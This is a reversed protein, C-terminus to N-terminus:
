IKGRIKLWTIGLYEYVAITAKDLDTSSPFFFSPMLKEKVCSVRHDTPAPIPHIGQREFLAMARPMHSASTVLLSKGGGIMPAIFRAEDETDLSKDELIIDEKPIHLALALDAMTSADTCSASMGGGSLLLKSGPNEEYLRIAEILRMLSAGGLRSTMAITKDISHGGGLVIIWRVPSKSDLATSGPNRSEVLSPYTRELGKLLKDSVPGYSLLTLLLTGSTVFIKGWKQKRSFWLLLLGVIQIGICLPLPFFFQSVIKKFLFM